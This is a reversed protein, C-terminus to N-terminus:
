DESLDALIDGIARYRELLAPMGEDVQKRDAARGAMELREAQDGLEMAGIWRAASKLSHIEIVYDERRDENRAQEIRRLRGPIQERFMLLTKRYVDVTGCYAMGQEVDIGDLGLFDEPIEEPALIEVPLAPAKLKDEPLWIRLANDLQDLEVPKSVFDNFGNELFYERMGKMANATLAIIPVVAFYPDKKGMERILRTAEVGDMDPMMHDMFVLDPWVQTMQRLAEQGSRATYVEMEYPRLLGQCVKLNLPQDDVILVAAEPAIFSNYRQASETREEGRYPGCPTPDVVTQPIRVWFDSGVGYTSKVGLQGHMLGVLKQCIPLGLGTGEIHRNMRQDLRGYSRFIYPMDEERIGVGTDEMHIILAGDQEAPEWTVTMTVAGTNTYKVANSGLNMIIHSINVDDGFLTGPITEDVQAHFTLKKEQARMRLVTITDHLTSLIHYNEPAIEMKGAEIKSLDLISNINELLIRGSGRIDRFCNDKEEAAEERLGVESLGLIANLPTRIDHSMNALFQSKAQSAAEAAEATVRAKEEEQRLNVTVTDDEFVWLTKPTEPSYGPMTLVRMCIWTNDRKKYTLEVQQGQELKEQLREFNVAECFVAIYDEDVLERGYRALTGSLRNNEKKLFDAFYDPVKISRTQDEKLDVVYIGQYYDAIVNVFDLEDESEVLKKAQLFLTHEKEELRRKEELEQRKVENVQRIFFNCKILRSASDRFFYMECSHWEYGPTEDTRVRYEQVMRTAGTFFASLLAKRDMANLYAERDKPHITPGIRERLFEGYSMQGEAQRRLDENDEWGWLIRWQDEELAAEIGVVTGEMMRSVMKAMDDQRHREKVKETVDRITGIAATGENDLLPEIRVQLWTEEEDMTKMEVESDQGLAAQELAAHFPAEWQAACNLYSLLQLPTGLTVKLDQGQGIEPSLLRIMGSPLLEFVQIDSGPLAANMLSNNRAVEQTLKDRVTRERMSQYLIVAVAAATYLLVLLSYALSSPIGMDVAKSVMEEQVGVCLSWGPVDTNVACLYLRSGEKRELYSVSTVNTSNGRLQGAQEENLLEMDYFDVGVTQKDHLTDLLVTGTDTEFVLINQDSGRLGPFFSHSFMSELQVTGFLMAETGPIEVFMWLVWTPKGDLTIKEANSICHGRKCAQTEPWVVNEKRTGDDLIATGDALRVGTQAFPSSHGMAALVNWAVEGQPSGDAAIIEAAADLRNAMDQVVGTVGASSQQAFVPLSEVAAEENRKEMEMRLILITAVFCAALIAITRLLSLARKQTRVQTKTANQKM